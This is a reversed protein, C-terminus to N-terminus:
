EVIVIGKQVLELTDGKKKYIIPKLVKTITKADKHVLSADYTTNTDVYPELLPSEFHYGMKDLEYRIRKFNNELSVETKGKTKREIEYIQNILDTM